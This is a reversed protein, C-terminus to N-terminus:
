IGGARLYDKTFEEDHVKEIVKQSLRKKKEDKQESKTDEIVLEDVDIEGLLENEDYLDQVKSWDIKVKKMELNEGVVFEGKKAKKM